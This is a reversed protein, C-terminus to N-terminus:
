NLWGIIIAMVVLSALQYGTDIGLLKWKKDGFISATAQVPLVFGLWLFFASSLAASFLGNGFFADSLIAVHSLMYAMLLSLVFSIAYFKGMDKQKAKLSEDTYGKLAAWQNGFLAKSYWGFGVAMSAVGAILVALYNVQIDM